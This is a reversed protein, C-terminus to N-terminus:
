KILKGIIMDLKGQVEKHSDRITESMEAVIEKVSQLAQKAVATETIQEAMQGELTRIRGTLLGLDTELSPVKHSREISLEIRKWDKATLSEHASGNSKRKYLVYGLMGLAALVCLILLTDKPAGVLLKLGDFIQQAM